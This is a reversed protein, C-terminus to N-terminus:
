DVIIKEFYSKNESILRVFYLGKRNLALRTKGQINRSVITKGDSSMIQMFAKGPIEITFVGHSPNPYVKSTLKKGEDTVANIIVSIFDQNLSTLLNSVELKEPLFSLDRHEPIIEGSWGSNEIASYKGEANTTVVTSFGKLKIGVMPKGQADSIRGSITYTAPADRIGEFNNGWTDGALNKIILREPSFTHGVLVPIITGNWGQEESTEYAGNENTVVTGTFGNIFVGPMPDGASNRVAGSINFLPTPDAVATFANDISSEVLATFELSEPIFTYGPLVPTITGSWGSIVKTYFEGHEDTQVTYGLGDFAVGKVPKGSDTQVIGSITVGEDIISYNVEIWSGENYVGGELAGYTVSFTYISDPYLPIVKAIGNRVEVTATNKNPYGIIELQAIPSYDETIYASVDLLPFSHGRVMQQDPIASIQPPRNDKKCILSIMQESIAGETDSVQLTLTITIDETDFVSASISPPQKSPFISADQVDVFAYLGDEEVLWASESNAEKFSFHLGEITTLDDSVYADLDIDSTWLFADKDGCEPWSDDCPFNEFVAMYIVPVNLVPPINEKSMRTILVYDHTTAGFEDAISIHLTDTGLWSPDKPYIEGSTIKLHDTENPITWVLQQNYSFDDSASLSLHPTEGVRFKIERTELVPPKNEIILRVVNSTLEYGPLDPHTIKCYYFGENDIKNERRLPYGHDNMEIEVGGRRRYYYWKVVSGELHVYNKLEVDVYEEADPTIIHLIDGAKKQPMFYFRNTHYTLKEYDAHIDSFIFKNNTIDLIQVVSEDTNEGLVRGSLDNGSVYLDLPVPLMVNRGREWLEAPISGKMKNDNGRIELLSKMTAVPSPFAEFLNGSFNLHTLKSLGTIKEPLVTIKNYSIDLYNLREMKGINEPLETLENYALEFRTVNVLDGINEPLKIIDNFYLFLYKLQNIEAMKPSIHRIKTMVVGLSTLQDLDRLIGIASPISDASGLDNNSGNFYLGTVKGTQNLTVGKWSSVPLRSDWLELWGSKRVENQFHVLVLSDQTHASQAFSQFGLFFGILFLFIFLFSFSASKM